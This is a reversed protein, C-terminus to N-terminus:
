HREERPASPFRPHGRKAPDVHSSPWSLGPWHRNSGAHLHRDLRLALRKRSRCCRSWCKSM